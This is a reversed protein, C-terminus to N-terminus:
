SYFRIRFTKNIKIYITQFNKNKRNKLVDYTEFSILFFIYILVPIAVVLAVKLKSLKHDYYVGIGLLILSWYMFIRQAIKTVKM